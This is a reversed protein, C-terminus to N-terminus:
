AAEEKDLVPDSPLLCIRASEGAVTWPRRIGGLQEGVALGSQLGDEHFGAGFYAGCFWTNRRGQLTWLKRQAEHAAADFVPHSYSQTRIVSAPERQPDLTVFLQRDDPLGQLRNMWYTIQANGANADGSHVYNWSSWVTRRKPMLTIDGHLVVKNERYRIAGLLRQEDPSPERLLALAEESHTAIVVHDYSAKDGGAQMIEVGTDSRAISVVPANCQVDRRLERLLKNVYTRSGGSVTRWQPRDRLLLLGHNDFFRVFAEASCDLMSAAPASWIAAAMPLLHDSQFADGYGNNRLYAGLTIGGLKEARLDSPAERYFRRLDSLMAWFRPKFINTRQAFLAALNTGAYELAGDCRSVSFSMESPKTPVGLHAFLATLNPYNSPNYVIFGTDVPVDAGSGPVDVTNSHGGARGEKEYVTVDHRKSLLWAAALGSIGTGVVAIRLRGQTSRYM